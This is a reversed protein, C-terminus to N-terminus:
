CINFASSACTCLYAPCSISLSPIIYYIVDNAKVTRFRKYCCFKYNNNDYVINTAVHYSKILTILLAKEFKTEVFKIFLYIQTFNIHELFDLPQCYAQALIESLRWVTKPFLTTRLNLVKQFWSNYLSINIFLVCCKGYCRYFFTEKSVFM